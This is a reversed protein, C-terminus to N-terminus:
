ELFLKTKWTEFNEIEKLQACLEYEELAELRKIEDAVEYGNLVFNLPSKKYKIFYRAKKKDYLTTLDKWSKANQIVQFTRIDIPLEYRRVRDKINGVNTSPLDM